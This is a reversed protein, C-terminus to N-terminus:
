NCTAGYFPRFRWRLWVAICVYWVICEVGAVVVTNPPQCTAHFFGNTQQKNYEDPIIVKGGLYISSILQKADNIYRESHTTALHELHTDNCITSRNSALDNILKYVNIDTIIM